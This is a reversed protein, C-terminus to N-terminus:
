RKQDQTFIRRSNYKKWLDYKFKFGNFLEKELEDEITLITRCRILLVLLLSLIELKNKRGKENSEDYIENADTFSFYDLEYNKIYIEEFSEFLDKGFFITIEQVFM